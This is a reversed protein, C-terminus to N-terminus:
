GNKKIRKMLFSLSYTKFLFKFTTLTIVLQILLHILIGSVSNNLSYFVVVNIASSMFILLYPVVPYDIIIQRRAEPLVFYGIVVYAFAQAVIFSYPPHFELTIFSLIILSIMGWFSAQFMMRQKSSLEFGTTVMYYIGQCVSIFMIFPTLGIGSWYKKAILLHFFTPTLISLVAWMSFIILVYFSTIEKFIKSPNTDTKHIQFKFPVWSQHIITVFFSIPKGLKSAVAYLGAAAIGLKQNIVFATFMSIVQGQIKHPIVPLGYSLLEKSIRNAPKIFLFNKNSVGAYLIIKYVSTSLMAILAGTVKWKLYLVLFISVTLGVVISSVNI